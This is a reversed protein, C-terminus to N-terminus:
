EERPAFRAGVEQCFSATLAAGDEGDLTREFLERLKLAFDETKLLKPLTKGKEVSAYVVSADPLSAGAERNAPYLGTMEYLKGAYEEALFRAFREAEDQVLSMGNVLIGAVGLSNAAPLEGTLPPVEMVGYAMGAGEVRERFMRLADSNLLLALNRGEVYGLVQLEERAGKSIGARQAAQAVFSVSALLGGEELECIEGDDGEKGGVNVHNGVFVYDCLADQTNFDLVKSPAGEGLAALDVNLLGELTGPAEVRDKRYVLVPTAVALPVGLVRGRYSMASLTSDPFGKEKLREGDMETALGFAYANELLESKLLFLDPVAEGEGTSREAIERLYETSSIQEVDVHVNERREYELAAASVYDALRQDSYCLTLHHEAKRVTVDEKGGFIGYLALLLVLCFFAGVFTLAMRGAKEEVRM